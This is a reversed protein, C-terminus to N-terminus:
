LSLGEFDWDQYTAENDFVMSPYNEAYATLREFMKKSTPQLAIGDAVGHHSVTKLAKCDRLMDLFLYTPVIVAPVVRDEVWAPATKSAKHKQVTQLRYIVLKSKNTGNLLDDVRGGNTKCEAHIYRVKGNVVIKVSVDARGQASVDTKRSTPRACNLEFIRGERGDDRENQAIALINNNRITTYKNAM